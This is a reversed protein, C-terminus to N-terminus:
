CVKGSIFGITLVAAASSRCIEGAEERCTHRNVSALQRFRGQGSWLRFVVSATFEPRQLEKLALHWGLCEEQQTHVQLWSGWSHVQM